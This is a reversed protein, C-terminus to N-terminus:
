QKDKNVSAKELEAIKDQAQKLAAQVQVLQAQFQGAEFQAKGLEMRLMAQATIPDAQQQASVPATVAMIAFIASTNQLSRIM